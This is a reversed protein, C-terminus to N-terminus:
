TKSINSETLKLCKNNILMLVHMYKWVVEKNDPSLGRWKSKLKNVINIDVYQKNSYDCEELFFDENKKMIKDGYPIAVCTNFMEQPVRVGLFKISWDLMNRMAQLDTEEPYTEVLDTLFEEFKLNFIAYPDM